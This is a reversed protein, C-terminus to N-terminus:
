NRYCHKSRVLIRGDDCLNFETHKGKMKFKSLSYKKIMPIVRDLRDVIGFSWRVEVEKPIEQNFAFLIGEENQSPLNGHAYEVSAFRKIKHTAFTLSSSLGRSNSRRGELFFRVTGQGKRIFQNEYVYLRSKIQSARVTSQGSIFDLAGDGNLDITIMGSPNLINIGYDRGKEEYAHDNEQEFLMLRSDPPFGSNAVLFDNLGDLNFDIWAGRRNGEEYGLRGEQQFFESRYFQPPFNKTNGSLVVSKDRSEPDSDKFLNGTIIDIIQDNNYDGCMSFFSNGGGKASAEGENDAAYGSTVGFDSFNEGDLNLWLKNFYGNSNATLIDPFGNKDVDCVSLGFTPTPNNIEEKLQGSINAFSFGKGYFLQDAVPRPVDGKQSFWNGLFIDLEGDLNFDGVAISATPLPGTPLVNKLTYSLQGNIVSGKYLRVPMQTLETKQNLYGVVVDLVDDHDIDVFNLYSAKIMENFPNPAAKFKKSPKDFFYFKPTDIFDELTILDTAGDDNVDAAYLNVAKIGELGYEHTKDSFLQSKVPGTPGATLEPQASIIPPSEQVPRIKKEACGTFLIVPLLLFSFAKKSTSLILVM